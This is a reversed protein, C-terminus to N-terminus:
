GGGPATNDLTLTFTTDSQSNGATDTGHAALSGSGSASAWSIATSDYPGGAPSSVTEASHSAGTFGSLLGFTTSAPGSLADTVTDRLKFSGAANGKYYITAGNKYVGGSVSNLTFADMPAVTDVLVPSTTWTAVN